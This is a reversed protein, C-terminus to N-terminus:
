NQGSSVIKELLKRLGQIVKERAERYLPKGDETIHKEGKMLLSIAEEIDAKQPFDDAYERAWVVCDFAEDEKEKIHYKEVISELKAFDRRLAGTM